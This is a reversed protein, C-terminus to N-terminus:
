RIEDSNIIQDIKKDVCYKEVYEINCYLYTPLSFQIML